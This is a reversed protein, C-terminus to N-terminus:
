AGGQVLRPAPSPSSRKPSALCPSSIVRPCDPMDVPLKALKSLSGQVAGWFFAEESIGTIVSISLLQLVSWSGFWPRLLAELWYRHGLFLPLTSKLTWVFFAFPPVAAVIGIVACKVSGQVDTLAPRHFLRSWVLALFLLALEFLCGTTFTLERRLLDFSLKAALASELVM